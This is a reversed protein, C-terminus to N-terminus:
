LKVMPHWRTKRELWATGGQAKAGKLAGLVPFDRHLNGFFGAQAPGELTRSRRRGPNRVGEVVRSRGSGPRSTEDSEREQPKVRWLRGGRCCGHRREVGRATRADAGCRGGRGDRVPQWPMRCARSVADSVVGAKVAKSWRRLQRRVVRPNSASGTRLEGPSQEEEPLCGLCRPGQKWTGGGVPRTALGEGVVSAIHTPGSVAGRLNLMEFAAPGTDGGRGSGRM